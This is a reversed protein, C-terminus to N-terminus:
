ISVNSDAFKLFSIHFVFYIRMFALLNLKYNILKKKELIKFSDLKIYDLKNSLRKTKINRKLLYITNKEKLTFERNKKKNAYLAFRKSLFKINKQLKKHM